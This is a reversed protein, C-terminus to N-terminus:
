MMAIMVMMENEKKEMGRGRKKGGNRTEENM